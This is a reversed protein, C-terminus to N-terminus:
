RNVHAGFEMKAPQSIKHCERLRRLNSAASSPQLPFSFIHTSGGKKFAASSLRFAKINQRQGKEKRKKSVWVRGYVASLRKTLLIDSTQDQDSSTFNILVNRGDREQIKCRDFCALHPRSKRAWDGEVCQTKAVSCCTPFRFCGCAADIISNRESKSM